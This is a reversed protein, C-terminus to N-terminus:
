LFGMKQICYHIGHTQTGGKQRQMDHTAKLIDNNNGMKLKFHNIVLAALVEVIISLADTNIILM